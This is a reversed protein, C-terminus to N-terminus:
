FERKLSISFTRGLKYRDFIATTGDAFDQTAEYDSGLINRIDLGIEYQGGWKEFGRSYVFDILIPPQEFVPPAVVGSLFSEVNRIRKSAWNVLITARSDLETDEVGLQLNFLHDSQGQLSRGDTVFNTAPLVNPLFQQTPGDLRGTTVTGDSSVESQSYTYNTKFVLDKSAVMPWDVIESLIFNKEFEFELGYLKASPSNIFSSIVLGGAELQFSDEIPNEIEKYFAGLTVFQGRGFYYEVRLDYNNIESDVLFPNGLMIQDTDEDVFFAPALERFQPRTITQSFGARVQIDEIPNWTVSAAPLFYEEDISTTTFSAPFLTPFASTSQQSDEFRGGAALRLYPGVQADLGVYGAHVELASDTNDLFFSGNILNLDLLNTGLVADSYILDIRSQALEPGLAGDYALLRSVTVRSKDTYAYGASLSVENGFAIFPLTFDIGADINEDDIRSFTVTNALTDTVKGSDYTPVGNGDLVYANQREYPSDRFAEGYAARWDVSLESLGPFIHAGRLQSQWVQRELFQTNTRQFDCDCDGVRGESFRAEKATSRLMFNTFTLEHDDGIEAGFTAFGNTDITNQTSTFDYVQGLSGFVASSILGQERRGERTQWDSSIGLSFTAGLSITDSAEIRHGGAINFSYDVPISNETILLTKNHELSVDFADQNSAIDGSLLLDNFPQPVDRTGDDIGLWDRKGGDYLLGNHFTTETDLGISGGVELFFEDPVGKTRLEILGGGFEGSFRPSFTKQVLSGSLISTPVIDLPAVRQLPEPSPLPSGNITVNSYRENLGRVVIFKGKSLSLGTVRALAAGIDSDGTRQFSAEDLVSSIESTARKEDPINVGRVIIQDDVQAAAGSLGGLTTSGMLACLAAKKLRTM